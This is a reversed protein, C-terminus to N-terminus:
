SSGGIFISVDHKFWCVRNRQKETINYLVGRELFDKVLAAAINHLVGPLEIVDKIRIIPRQYLLQM